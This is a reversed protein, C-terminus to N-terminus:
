VNLIRLLLFADTRVLRSAEDDCPSMREDGFDWLDVGCLGEGGVILLGFFLLGFVMWDALMDGICGILGASGDPLLWM